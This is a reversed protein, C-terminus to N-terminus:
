NGFAQISNRVTLTIGSHRKRIVTNTATHCWVAKCSPCTSAEFTTRRALKIVSTLTDFCSSDAVVIHRDSYPPVNSGSTIMFGKDCRKNPVKTKYDWYSSTGKTPYLPHYKYEVGLVLEGVGYDGAPLNSSPQVQCTVSGCSLTRRRKYYICEFKLYKPACCKIMSPGPCMNDYRSDQCQGPVNVNGCRGQGGACSIKDPDRVCCMIDSGHKSCLGPISVGGSATCETTRMCQGTAGFESPRMYNDCHSPKDAGVCCKVNSGTPCGYEAYPISGNTCAFDNACYGSGNPGSCPVIQGPVCCTVSAPYNKCGETGAISMGETCSSTEKCVGQLLYPYDANLTMSLKTSTVFSGHKCQIVVHQCCLRVTHSSMVAATCRIIRRIICRITCMMRVRTCTLWASLKRKLQHRGKFNKYKASQTAADRYM